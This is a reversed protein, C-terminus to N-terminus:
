AKHTEPSLQSTPSPKLNKEKKKQQPYNANNKIIITSLVWSTPEITGTLM